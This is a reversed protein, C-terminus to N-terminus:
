KLNRLFRWAFWADAPGYHVGAQLFRGADETIVALRRKEMAWRLQLHPCTGKNPSIKLGSMGESYWELGLRALQEVMQALEDRDSEQELMAASVNYKALVDLPLRAAESRDNDSLLSITRFIGTAAGLFNLNLSDIEGDDLALELEIETAGSASFREFMANEDSDPMANIHLIANSILRQLLTNDLKDRAGCQWLARLVPHRSPSAPDALIEEHWWKLKAWKVEDETVALPITSVSQKLAYLALLSDLQDNALFRSSFEFLSGPLLVLESCHDFEVPAIHLGVM